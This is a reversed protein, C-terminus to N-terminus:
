QSYIDNVYTFANINNTPLTPLTHHPPSRALDSPSPTPDLNMDNNSSDDIEKNLISHNASSNDFQQDKQAKLATFNIKRRKYSAM